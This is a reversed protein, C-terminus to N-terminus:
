CTRRSFTFWIKSPSPSYNGVLPFRPWTRHPSSNPWPSAIRFAGYWSGRGNGTLLKSDGVFRALTVKHSSLDKEFPKFAAVSEGKEVTIIDVREGQEMDTLAIWKADGTLLRAPFEVKITREHLGEALNYVEITKSTVGALSHARMHEPMFDPLAKVGEPLIDVFLRGSSPSFCFHDISGAKQNLQIPGPQLTIDGAPDPSATWETKGDPKKTSKVGVLNTETLKPWKVATLSGKAKDQASGGPKAANASDSKPAAEANSVAVDARATKIMQAIADRDQEIIKSEFNGNGSDIFYVGQSSSFLKPSPPPGAMLRANRLSAPLAPM